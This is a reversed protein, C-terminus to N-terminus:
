RQGANTPNNPMYLGKGLMQEYSKLQKSREKVDEIVGM